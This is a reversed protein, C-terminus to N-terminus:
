AQTIRGVSEGSLCQGRLRLSLMVVTLRCSMLAVRSEAYSREWGGILAWFSPFHFKVINVDLADPLHQVIENSAKAGFEPELRLAMVDNLTYGAHAVPKVDLCMLVYFSRASEGLAGRKKLAIKLLFKTKV